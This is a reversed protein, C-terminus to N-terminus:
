ALLYQQTHRLLSWPIGVVACFLLMYIATLFNSGFVMRSQKLLSKWVAAFSLCFCLALASFKCLSRRGPASLECLSKRAPYRSPSLWSQSYVEMYRSSGRAGKSRFEAASSAPGRCERRSNSDQQLIGQVSHPCGPLVPMLAPQGLWGQM